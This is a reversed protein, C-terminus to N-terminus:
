EAPRYGDLLRLAEQSSSFTNGPNTLLLRLAAEINDVQTQLRGLDNLSNMVSTEM